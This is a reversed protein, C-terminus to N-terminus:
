GMSFARDRLSPHLHPLLRTVRLHHEDTGRIDRVDLGGAARRERESLRRRVHVAADGVEIWEGLQPDGVGRLANVAADRLQDVM